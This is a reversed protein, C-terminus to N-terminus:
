EPEAPRVVDIRGTFLSKRNEAEPDGSFLGGTGPNPEPDLSPRRMDAAATDQVRVRPLSVPSQEHLWTVLEERVFCRLDFLAPADVASVLIRIRVYGGVADTVQLVSVRKDWLPTRSLVRDLEERMHQPTVRWDLDFEVSGLLESNRRTWNQYPRSTFYTSPLIMRRDDWIHVVVYTLTIEEVRGWEEEVIVVDDVRIADSFALQMGSFVNSLSSQVALGAIISLLGASALLSAGFTQAGPFSLLVAGLAVVVVVVISLRKLILVQTRVRRAVRNDPTDIRYRALGLNELFVIVAGVLWAITVIALIRMVLGIASSAQPDTVTIGLSAWVFCVVLAARFPRRATDILQGAWHRRKAAIRFVLAVVLVVVVAAAVAILAGLVSTVLESQLIDALM